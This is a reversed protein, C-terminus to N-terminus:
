RVEVAFDFDASDPRQSMWVLVGGAALGGAVAVTITWFWWRTAISKKKITPGPVVASTAGAAAGALRLSAFVSGVQAMASHGVDTAVVFYEDTEAREAPTLAIAIETGTRPFFRSSKWPGDGKRYIVRGGVIVSLPDSAVMVRLVLPEGPAPAPPPTHDIRMPTREMWWARARKFCGSIRPGSDDGPINEPNLAVSVRCLKDATDSAGFSANVVACIYHLAASVEMSHGGATIARTCAAKAEDLELAENLGEIEKVVKM